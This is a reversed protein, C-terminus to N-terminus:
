EEIENIESPVGDRTEGRPEVRLPEHSQIWNPPQSEADSYGLDDTEVDDM